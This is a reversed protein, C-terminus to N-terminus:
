RQGPLGHSQSGHCAGGAAPGGAGVAVCSLASVPTCAAGYHAQCMGSHPHPGGLVPAPLCNPQRRLVRPAPRGPSSGPAHGCGRRHRNTRPIAKSNYQLQYNLQHRSKFDRWGVKIEPLLLPVYPAMDRPDNVLTCLNGVIRGARKKLDGAPPWMPRCNSGGILAFFLRACVLGRSAARNEPQRLPVPRATDARCPMQQM